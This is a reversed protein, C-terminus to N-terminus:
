KSNASDRLQHNLPAIPQKSRNLILISSASNTFTELSAGKIKCFSSKSVLTTLLETRALLSIYGRVRQLVTCNRLRWYGSRVQFVGLELGAMCRPLDTTFYRDQHTNATLLSLVYSNTTGASPGM